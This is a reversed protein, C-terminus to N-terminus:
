SLAVRITATGKAVCTWNTHLTAWLCYCVIVVRHRERSSIPCCLRAERERVKVARFLEVAAWHNSEIAAMEPTRDRADTAAADAGAALLTSLSQLKGLSAATTLLTQGDGWRKDLDGRGCHKLLEVLSGNEAAISALLADRPDAHNAIAQEM